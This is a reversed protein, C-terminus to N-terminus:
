SISCYPRIGVRDGIRLTPAPRDWAPKEVSLWAGPLILTDSGIAMQQPGFVWLPRHLISGRGFEHFRRKRWPRLLLAELEVREIPHTVLRKPHTVLREIRERGRM